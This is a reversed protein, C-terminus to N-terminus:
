RAAAQQKRIQLKWTAIRWDGLWCAEPAFGDLGIRLSGAIDARAQKTEAPTLDRLKQEKREDDFLPVLGTFHANALVLRRIVEDRPKSIAILVSERTPATCLEAIFANFADVHPWPFVRSLRPGSGHLGRRVLALIIRRDTENAYVSLLAALRRATIGNAALVEDPSRERATTEPHQEM